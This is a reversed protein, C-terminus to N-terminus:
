LSHVGDLREARDAGHQRVVAQVLCDLECLEAFAAQGARDDGIVITDCAFKDEASGREVAAHDDDVPVAGGFRRAM